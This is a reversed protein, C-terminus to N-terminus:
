PDGVVLVIDNMHDSTPLDSAMVTPLGRIPVAASLAADPVAPTLYVSLRNEGGQPVFYEWGISVFIQVDTLLRM